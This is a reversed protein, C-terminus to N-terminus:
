AALAASRRLFRALKGAGVPYALRARSECSFGTVSQTAMNARLEPDMPNLTGFYMRFRSRDHWRALQPFFGSTDGQQAFHLIRTTM